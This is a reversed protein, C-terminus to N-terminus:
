MGAPDEISEKLIRVLDADDFSGDEKRKLGGFTREHPKKEAVSKEFIALGEMLQPLSVQKPDTVPFLERYFEETWKEDRKSIGSHFRYLLNFECSVQNGVGRPTGDKDFKSPGIEM